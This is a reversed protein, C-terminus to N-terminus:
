TLSLFKGFYQNCKNAIWMHYILVESLPGAAILFLVNSHARAINKAHEIVQESKEEFFNVIDDPIFYVDQAWTFKNLNKKSRHNIMLIVNQALKEGIVESIM